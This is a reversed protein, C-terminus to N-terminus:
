RPAISVGLWARQSALRYLSDGLASLLVHDEKKIYQRLQSMFDKLTPEFDTDKPDLEQLKNLVEKVEIRVPDAEAKGRLTLKGAVTEASWSCYFRLM